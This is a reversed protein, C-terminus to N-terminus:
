RLERRGGNWRNEMIKWIKGDAKEHNGRTKGQKGDTKSQKAELFLPGSVVELGLDRASAGKELRLLEEYEELLRPGNRRVCHSGYSM